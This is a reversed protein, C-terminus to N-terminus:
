AGFGFSVQSVLEADRLWEVFEILKEIKDMRMEREMRLVLM